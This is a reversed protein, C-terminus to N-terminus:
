SINESPDSSGLCVTHTTFFAKKTTHNNKGGGAIYIHIYINQPSSRGPCKEQKTESLCKIQLKKTHAM